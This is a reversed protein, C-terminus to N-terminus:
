LTNIFPILIISYTYFNKLSTIKSPHLKQPKQPWSAKQYIKIRSIENAFSQSDHTNSILFSCLIWSNELVFIFNHFHQIQAMM